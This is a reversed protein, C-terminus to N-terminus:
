LNELKNIYYIRDDSFSLFTKDVPDYVITSLIEDRIYKFKNLLIAQTLERRDRKYDEIMKNMNYRINENVRERIYKYLSEFKEGIDMCNMFSLEINKLSFNEIIMRESINHCTDLEIRKINKHYILGRIDVGKFVCEHFYVSEINPAKLIENLGRNYNDTLENIFLRRLEKLREFINGSYLTENISGIYREEDEVYYNFDVELEELSESLYLLNKYNFCKNDCLSLSRISKGDLGAGRINTDGIIIKELKSMNKIGEDTIGKNVWKIYLKRMERLEKIDDDRINNELGKLKLEKLNRRERLISGNYIESKISLYELEEYIEENMFDLYHNNYEERERKSSEEDEDLINPSYVGRGITLRRVRMNKYFYKNLVRIKYIVRINDIYKMVNENFIDVWLSSVIENKVRKNYREEREEIEEIEEIEEEEIEEIRRKRINEVRDKIINIKKRIM